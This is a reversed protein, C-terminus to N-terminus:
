LIKSTTISNVGENKPIDKSFEELQKESFGSVKQLRCKSKRKKM